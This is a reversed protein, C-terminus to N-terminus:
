TSLLLSYTRMIESPLSRNRRFGNQEDQLLDNDELYNTVRRNILASYLKSICPLLSIGRYNMPDRSDTNCDKLIPCIISKRWISPIISTDFIFQFLHHLTEIILPFKLVINPIQDYGCASRNRSHMVIETIEEITINNNIQDNQSYLPDEMNQKLLQKHIIAQDYHEKNFEDSNSGNYLNQFDLRWKKLVDSETRVPYGNENIIEM